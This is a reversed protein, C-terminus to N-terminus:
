SRAALCLAEIEEIEKPINQSLICYGEATILIDDEIRIGLNEEPIYIGPEVTLVNGVALVSDRAGLDHTDMGLHHGISHMYYRRYDSENTILGLRVLAAGMLEATKENLQTLGVGPKMMSIIEKQIALVETYVEKQRPSFKGSVPFCRTIDASYNMYSAGVDLLVVDSEKIQCDNTKYHLTAANIGAAIIPAFGWNRVSKKQLHYFLLAELEYEM